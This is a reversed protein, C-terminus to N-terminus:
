SGSSFSASSSSVAITITAKSCSNTNVTHVGTEGTPVAPPWTDETGLSDGIGCAMVNAAANTTRTTNNVTLAGRTSSNSGTKSLHDKGSSCASEVELPSSAPQSPAPCIPPPPEQHPCCCCPCPSGNIVANVTSAIASKPCCCPLCFMQLSSWIVGMIKTRSVAFQQVHVQMLIHKYRYCM